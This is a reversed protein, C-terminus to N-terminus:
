AGRKECLYFAHAPDDTPILSRRITFGAAVLARKLRRRSWGRKGLEWYHEGQFTHRKWFHPLKWGLYTWPLLPLKLIGSFVYGSHPVTILVWRKSVRGLELLAKPVDEFPIHELVEACLVLDYTNSEVPIDTVTAVFTPELAPDIDVTEVKMGFRQLVDQMLGNGKGIELVTTPACRRVWELQYWYNLWRDKTVYKASRYVEAALQIPPLM